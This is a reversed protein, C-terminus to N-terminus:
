WIWENLSVSGRCGLSLSIPGVVVRRGLILSVSGLAM